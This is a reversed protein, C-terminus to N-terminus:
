KLKRLEQLERVLERCQNAVGLNSRVSENFASIVEYERTAVAYRWVTAQVNGPLPDLLGGIERLLVTERDDPVPIEHGAVTDNNSPASPEDRSRLYDNQASVELFRVGPPNDFVVVYGQETSSNKEREVIGFVTAQHVEGSSRKVPMIVVKDDGFGRGIIPFSLGFEGKPVLERYDRGVVVGYRSSFWDIPDINKYESGISDKSAEAGWPTM